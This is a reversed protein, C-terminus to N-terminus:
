NRAGGAVADRAHVARWRRYRVDFEGAHANSLNERGGREGAAVM